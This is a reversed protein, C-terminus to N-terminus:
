YVTDKKVRFQSVLSQLAQAQGSLEESAAASEESTASNTQVVQAIQSISVTITNITETQQASSDSINKVKDTVTQAGGVVSDLSKQTKEMLGVGSQVSLMSQEILATTSQAAEASKSALNRVEDAVVAFGKGASGARAAEVAANLALINTQFAIDEITKIINGIQQSSHSIEQMAGAMEHMQQNCIEIQQGVEATADNTLAADQANEAIQGSVEKLRDMLQDIEESQETAGQALTQASNSIQEAGHSVEIAAQDIQTMTGNLQNIILGISEQIKVFDGIYQLDNEIMLNGHALEYLKESIDRIYRSLIEGSKNMCEALLGVEDESHLDIHFNLNGESLQKGCVTIEELPDIVRKVVFRILLYSVFLILLITVVSVAYTFTIAYSLDQAYRTLREQSISVVEDLLEILKTVNARTGNLYAAHAAEPDSERMALVETASEHVARHLPEIEQVLRAISEDSDEIASGYLWQGLSCATYDTSGTFETGLGVASSLNEIWSFHAKEANLATHLLETAEMTSRNFGNIGRVGLMTAGGSVIVVLFIIAVRIWVIKKISRKM